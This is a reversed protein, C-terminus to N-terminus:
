DGKQIIKLLVRNFLILGMLPFAMFSVCIWLPLIERRGIAMPIAFLLVFPIFGILLFSLVYSIYIRHSRKINSIIVSLLEKVGFAIFAIFAIQVLRLVSFFFEFSKQTPSKAFVLYGGFWVISIVFSIVSPAMVKLRSNERRMSQGIYLIVAPSFSSALILISYFPIFLYNVNSYVFLITILQYLIYLLLSTNSQYPFTVYFVTTVFFLLVPIFIMLFMYDRSYKYDMQVPILFTENKRIIEYVAIKGAGTKEIMNRKMDFLSKFEINNISVVTDNIQINANYGPSAFPVYSVVSGRDSFEYEIGDSSSSHMNLLGIVCIVITAGAAFFVIGSPNRKM